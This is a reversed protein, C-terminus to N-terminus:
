NQVLQYLAIATATVVNMSSNKGFMKVHVTHDCIDLLDQHLGRKENGICIIMKEAEPKFNEISVSENTMELAITKFNEFNLASKLLNYNAIFDISINSEASRSTRKIRKTLTDYEDTVFIIREVGMAEATRILLGYNEPSRLHDAVIVIEYKHVSPKFAIHEIQIESNM